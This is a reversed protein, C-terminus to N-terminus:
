SLGVLREHQGAIKEEHFATGGEDDPRQFLLTLLRVRPDELPRGQGNIRVLVLLPHVFLDQHRADRVCADVDVFRKATRLSLLPEGGQSCVLRVCSM